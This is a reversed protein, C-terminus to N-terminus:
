GPMGPYEVRCIILVPLKKGVDPFCLFALADLAAFIPLALGLRLNDCFGGVRLVIAVRM